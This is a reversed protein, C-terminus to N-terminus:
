KTSFQWVDSDVTAGDADEVIVKWYYSKNSELNNKTHIIDGHEINDTDQREEDSPNGKGCSSVNFVSILVVFVFLLSRTRNRTGVLGLLLISSVGMGAIIKASVLLNVSEPDCNEFSEQECVVIHYSLIGGDPDTSANWSLRLSNAELGTANNKPYVLDPITPLGNVQISVDAVVSDLDGDNVKYQFSDTGFFGPNPRYILSPTTGELTGNDPNSVLIFGIPDRDFDDGKLIIQIQENENVTLTLQEAIPAVNNRITVNGSVDALLRIITGESEEGLLNVAHIRYVYNGSTQTPKTDSIQAIRTSPFEDLFVPESDGPEIRYVNYGSVDQKEQWSFKISGVENSFQLNSLIGPSECADGLRNKNVDVQTSNQTQPCNDISDVIGDNDSDRCGEDIENNGNNDVGDCLEVKISDSKVGVFGESLTSEKPWDLGADGQLKSFITPSSACYNGPSGEPRCDYTANGILNRYEIPQPYCQEESKKYLILCSHPSPIMGWDYRGLFVEDNNSWDCGEDVGDKLNNDEGDCPEGPLSYDKGDGNVNMSVSDSNTIVGDCNWDIGPDHQPLNFLEWSGGQPQRAVTANGDSLVVYRRGNEGPTECTYQVVPKAGPDSSDCTLNRLRTAFLSQPSEFLGAEGLDGLSADSFDVEGILRPVLDGSQPPSMCFQGNNYAYNMVSIYNPQRNTNLWQGDYFLREGNKQPLNNGSRGGHGLGLSHGLEHLLRRQQGADSERICNTTTDGSIGCTLPDSGLPCACNDRPVEVYIDYTFYQYWAGSRGAAHRGYMYTHTWNLKPEFYYNGESDKQFAATVAELPSVPNGPPRSRENEEVHLNVDHTRFTSVVGDVVGTNVRAGSEYDYQFFIDKKCPNAGMAPLDVFQGNPTTLGKVEWGDILADRDSDENTPSTCLAREVANSLGDNDQDIGDNGILITFDPTRARFSEQDIAEVWYKFTHRNDPPSITLSCGASTEAPSLNCIQLYGEAVIRIVSVGADDNVQANITIVDGLAPEDPTFSTNIVPAQGDSVVRFRKRKSYGVRGRHDEAKFYYHHIGVPFSQSYICQDTVTEDTRDYSCSHVSTDDIYITINAVDVDDTAYGLFEITEGETPDRNVLGRAGAYVVPNQADARPVLEDDITALIWTNPSNWTFGVPWGHDDGVVQHWHRVVQFGFFMDNSAVTLRTRPIMFEAQWTFELGVPIAAQIDVPLPKVDFGGANDGMRIAAVGDEDVTVAFDDIQAFTGGDASQDIYVSAFPQTTRNTLYMHDFCVYLNSATAGVYVWQPNSLSSDEYWIPVKFNGYESAGCVGDIVPASGIRPIHLPEHIVPPAASGTFSPLGSEIGGVVGNNRGLMDESGGDMSWSAILGPLPAKVQRMMDRRIEVTDRAYNWIRVEAINGDFPYSANLYVDNGIGIEKQTIPLISSSTLDLYTLEGNVYYERATGDFTVAIHTWEAIPITANGDKATGTGNTYYRLKGSCIGLWYGNQFDKGVIASCGNKLTRMRVWAEITIGATPNLEPANPVNIIDDVGDLSLIKNSTAHLTASSWLLLVILFRSIIIKIAMIEGGDWSCNM